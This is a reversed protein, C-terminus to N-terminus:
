AHFADWNISPVFILPTADPSHVKWSLDSDVSLSLPRGSDGCVTEIRASVPQGTLRGHVFPVAFTDEACAGFIQEGSDFEMRHPTEDATVPFAWAVDGQANRVLFFLNRELEEVITHVRLAPLNLELAIEDIRIPRQFRPLSAVVFNRVRHHDAGMFSLRNRAKSASARVNAQWEPTM